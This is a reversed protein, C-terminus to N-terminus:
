VTRGAEMCVLKDLKAAALVRAPQSNPNEIRLRGAITSLRRNMRLILAIGSSDMFRLDSLELVCRRPLYDDILGDIVRAAERAEHHDLEGQLCVTLTGGSFATNITM